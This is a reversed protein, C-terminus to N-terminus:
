IVEIPFTIIYFDVLRFRHLLTPKWDLFFQRSDPTDEVDATFLVMSDELRTRLHVWTFRALLDGRTHNIRNFAAELGPEGEFPRVPLAFEYRRALM